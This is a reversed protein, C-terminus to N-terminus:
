LKIVIHKQQDNRDVVLELEKAQRLEQSIFTMANVRSVRIGNIEVLVDGVQLETSDFLLSSKSPNLRYGILKGNRRVDSVNLYNLMEHPNLMIQQRIDSLLTQTNKKNKTVVPHNHHLLSSDEIFLSETRGSNEIIVKNSFVASLKAQTGQILDGIGYTQQTKKYAIIALNDSKQNSSVVGVLKLNLRTKPAKINSSQLVDTPMQEMGFLNASKITSLNSLSDSAILATPQVTWKDVQYPSVPFWILIGLQWIVVILIAVFICRSIKAQNTQFYKFSTLWYLSM